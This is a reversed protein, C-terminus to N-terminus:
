SGIAIPAPERPSLFSGLLAAMAGALFGADDRQQAGPERHRSILGGGTGTIVVLVKPAIPMRATIIRVTLSPIHPDLAAVFRVHDRPARDDMPIM